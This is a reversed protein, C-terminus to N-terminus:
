NGSGFRSEDYRAKAHAYFDQIAQPATSITAPASLREVVQGNVVALEIRTFQGPLLMVRGSANGAMAVEFSATSANDEFSVVAETARDALFAVRLLTTDATRAGAGGVLGAATAAILRRTRGIPSSPPRVRGAAVAYGRWLDFTPLENASSADFELLSAGSQDDGIPWRGSLVNMSDVPVDNNLVTMTQASNTKTTSFIVEQPPVADENRVSGRPWISVTYVTNTAQALAEAAPTPAPAAEGENLRGTHACGALWGLSVGLAGAICRTGRKM